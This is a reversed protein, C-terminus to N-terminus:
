DYVRQNNPLHSTAKKPTLIFAQILPIIFIFLIMSIIIIQSSIQLNTHLEGSYNTFFEKIEPINSINSLTLFKEKNHDWIFLGTKDFYVIQDRVTQYEVYMITVKSNYPKTEVGNEDTVNEIIEGNATKWDKVKVTGENYYNVENSLKENLESRLTNDVSNSDASVALPVFFLLFCFLIINIIKM